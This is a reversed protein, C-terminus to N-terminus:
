NLVQYPSQANVAVVEINSCYKETKQRKIDEATPPCLWGIFGTDFPSSGAIIWVSQGQLRAREALCPWEQQMRTQATRVIKQAEDPEAGDQEISAQIEQWRANVDPIPDPADFSLSIREYRKSMENLIKETRAERVLEPFESVAQASLPRPKILWVFLPIAVVALLAVLLSSMDKQNFRKM